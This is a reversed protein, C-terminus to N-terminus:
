NVARKVARIIKDVDNVELDPYIPLDLVTNAAYESNPFNRKNIGQCTYSFTWALDVGQKIMKEFFNNKNVVRIPFRAWVPRIGPKIKPLDIKEVDQLYSFYRQAVKERRAINNHLESIQNNLLAASYGSIGDTYDPTVILQSEEPSTYAGARWTWLRFILSYLTPNTVLRYTLSKQWYNKRSYFVTSEYIKKLREGLEKSYVLLCGGQVANIIKTDQFSIVSAQAGLGALKKGAIAGMAAAADEFLFVKKKNAIFKLKEIDCPIGFQHTAIIVKTKNNVSEEVEKPLMNYDDLSIDVLRNKMGSFRVADPVVVCNYSPSIAEGMGFINKLFFYIGSRAQSFLFVYETSYMEQLNRKLIKTQDESNQFLSPLIHSIKYTPRFRPIM